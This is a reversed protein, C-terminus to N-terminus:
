REAGIQLDTERFYKKKGGPPIWTLRTDHAAPGPFWTLWSYSTATAVKPDYVGKTMAIRETSVPILDPRTADDKFLAEYRGVSELWATRVIMSVTAAPFRRRAVAVFEQARNFPPNFFVWNPPHSPRWSADNLFDGVKGYGYDHIDSAYVTPFYEKLPEAMHGQGCCPDLVSMEFSQDLNMFECFARVSWPPTPFFDLSDLPEHRQAMVAPSPSKM